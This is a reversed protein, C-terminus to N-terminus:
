AGSEIRWDALHSHSHLRDASGQDIASVRAAHQLARGDGIPTSCQSRLLRFHDNDEPPFPDEIFFPRYQEVDKCIQIGQQLTVREHIDHLFEVDDGFKARM